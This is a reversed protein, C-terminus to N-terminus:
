SRRTTYNNTWDSDNPEYITIIKILDSEIRSVPLHLVRGGITIGLLLCSPSYKDDPYDEILIANAGVEVIELDNINREISRKFAHRTFEFEGAQLQQRIQALPKM